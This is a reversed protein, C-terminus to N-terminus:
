LDGKEYEANFTRDRVWGWTEGYVIGNDKVPETPRHPYIHDEIPSIPRKKRTIFKWIRWMKLYREAEKEYVKLESAHDSRAKEYVKLKIDYEEQNFESMQEEYFEMNTKYCTEAYDEDFSDPVYNQHSEIYKWYTGDPKRKCKFVGIAETYNNAYTAEVKLTIDFLFDEKEM